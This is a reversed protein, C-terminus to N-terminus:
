LWLKNIMKSMWSKSEQHNEYFARQPVNTDRWINHHNSWTPVPIYIQPDPSFRKQFDAFIQCAGTGSHAQIAERVRDLLKMNLLRCIHQM